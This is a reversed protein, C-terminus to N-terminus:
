VIVYWCRGMVYWRRGMVHIGQNALFHLQVANRVGPEDYDHGSIIGGKKVKPLWAQIDAFVAEESHDADIFVADISGDLADSYNSEGCIVGVEVGLAVMNLRFAKEVDGGYTSLIAAHEPNAPKGKFTDVVNLDIRKGAEKAFADFAAISRGLWCGVEVFNGGNPIRDVLFRYFDEYDFWGHIDKWSTINSDVRVLSEAPFSYVKSGIHKLIIGTDVLTPIGLRLRLDECFMWDESIWERIPYGGEDKDGIMASRKGGVIGSRFFAWEIQEHNHFRLAPGGNDEKLAEFVERTAMLFGRGSRRVGVLGHEDPPLVEPWTNLCPTAADEKKPYLGWVAKVGREIHGIARAVDKATFVTDIDVILMVDCDTKNLFFNAMNNCQRDAHSGGMNEIRVHRGNFATALSIAWATKGDGSGNCSVPVFIKPGLDYGYSKGLGGWLEAVVKGEGITEEDMRQSATKPM